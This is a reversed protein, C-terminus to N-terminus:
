KYSIPLTARDCGEGALPRWIFRIPQINFYFEPFPSAQVDTHPVYCIQEGM